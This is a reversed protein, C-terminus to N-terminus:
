THTNSTIQTETETQTPKGWETDNHQQWCLVTLTWTVWTQTIYRTALWTESFGRNGVSFTGSVSVPRHPSYIYNTVCRDIDNHLHSHGITSPYFKRYLILYL